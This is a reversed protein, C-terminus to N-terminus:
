GNEEEEILRKKRIAPYIFGTLAVLLFSLALLIGYIVFPDFLVWAVGSLFVFVLLGIYYVFRKM